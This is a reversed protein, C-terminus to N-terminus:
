NWSQYEVKPWGPRTSAIAGEDTNLMAQGVPGGIAGNRVATRTPSRSAQSVVDTSAAVSPIAHSLFMNPRPSVCNNRCFMEPDTALELVGITPLMFLWEVHWSGSHRRTLHLVPSPQRVTLAVTSSTSHDSLDSRDSRYGGRRFSWWWRSGGARGAARRGSPRTEPLDYDDRFM